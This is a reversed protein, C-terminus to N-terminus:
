WPEQVKHRVFTHCNFNLFRSILLCTDNSDVCFWHYRGFSLVTKPSCVTNELSLCTVDSCWLVVQVRTFTLYNLRYLGIVFHTLICIAAPTSNTERRAFLLCEGFPNYRRALFRLYHWNTVHACCIGTWLSECLTSLSNSQFFLCVCVHKFLYIFQRLCFLVVPILSVVHEYMLIALWVHNHWMCWLFFFACVSVFFYCNGATNSNADYKYWWMNLVFLFTM